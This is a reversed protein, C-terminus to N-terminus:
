KGGGTTAAKRSRSITNTGLLEWPLKYDDSTESLLSDILDLYERKKRDWGHREVYDYGNAVLRNRVESHLIVDLMAEAMARDDGSNFFRVNSEDFYYTDVKTRSVVVPVGQSMFEMIKTSCAENGFSDARKPVVGLDADAMVQPVQDLTLGGGFRVCASLGLADVLESLNALAYRGGGGGYLHFEANPLQARVRGFAKIAIDLGQHWQFSGPFIVIIKGDQRIRTRRHFIAPDVYNLVVSCKNKPVSRCILREQWLHNAVIVHNAFKASIKEIAMLLTVYGGGRRSRFKSQFLEPVIDHIDLILKAGTSKPYWASFVLFDPINHVHILDYRIRHHQRTLHASSVIMFKLLQFAFMWENKENGLRQKITHFTVGSLTATRKEGGRGCIAFVEVYDGRKALTEAYRRVRNDSEYSNHVVMCIKRRTNRLEPPLSSRYFRGVDRPLASWFHQHHRENLYTLLEEYHSVPYEGRQRNRDFSIYDPHVNLLVMGGHAAIWDVKKKWIDITPERLIVFLTFDQVLTYPLEVYGQGIPGPVWFPFITRVGDPEPEFPDTDFTSSDYDVGLQHLWGLRHQMLPSRFGAANWDRLYERIRTAKASFNAKSSYLKGDHELGHVGVEFGDRELTRRLGGPLRYEGEPVFNFSSRFGHRCEVDMLQPVRQLGKAGEVDHTLVVAFQKGQPWGPWNPPTAGAVEDIPWTDAFTVRRSNARWRRFLIRLAWPLVPKFLYYTKNQL